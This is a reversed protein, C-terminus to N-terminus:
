SLILMLITENKISDHLYSVVKRQDNLEALVFM